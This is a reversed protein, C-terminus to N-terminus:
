KEKKKGVMTKINFYKKRIIASWDYVGLYRKNEPKGLERLFRGYQVYSNHFFAFSIRTQDRTLVIHSGARRCATCGCREWVKDKLSDEAVEVMKDIQNQSVKIVGFSKFCDYMKKYIKLFRKLNRVSQRENFRVFSVYCCDTINRVNKFTEEDTKKRFLLISKGRASPIKINYCPSQLPSDLLENNIFDPDWVTCKTKTATIYSYNNDFTTVGYKLFVPVVKPSPFRGYLHLGINESVGYKKICKHILPLLEIVKAESYSPLGGIAVYKYGLKLVAKLSSIYSRVSYGQVTGFPIFNIQDKSKGRCKKLFSKALDVTLKCRYRKEKDTLDRFTVKGTKEDKVRIKNIVPWDVSGCLDFHLSNYYNFLLDQDFLFEPLKLKHVYSWTGPDAFTIYSPFNNLSLYDRINEYYYKTRPVCIRFQSKNIKLKIRMDLMTKSILLGSCLHEKCIEYGYQVDKWVRRIPFGEDFNYHPVVPVYFM